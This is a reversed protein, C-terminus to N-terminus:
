AIVNTTLVDSPEGVSRLIVPSSPESPAIAAERRLLNEEWIRLEEEQTNLAKAHTRQEQDVMDYARRYGNLEAREIAFQRKKSTAGRSRAHWSGLLYGIVILAIAILVVILASAWGEQLGDLAM